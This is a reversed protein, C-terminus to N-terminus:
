SKLTAWWQNGGFHLKRLYSEAIM